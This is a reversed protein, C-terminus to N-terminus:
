EQVILRSCVVMSEKDHLIYLIDGM